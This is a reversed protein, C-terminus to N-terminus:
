ADVVRVPRCQVQVWTAVGSCAESSVNSTDSGEYGVICFVEMDRVPKEFRGTANHYESAQGAPYWTAELQDSFWPSASLLLVAVMQM